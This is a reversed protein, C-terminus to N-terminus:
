QGIIVKVARQEFFDKTANEFANGELGKCGKLQAALISGPSITDLNKIPVPNDKGDIMCSQIGDVSLVDSLILSKSPNTQQGNDFVNEWYIVPRGTTVEEKTM